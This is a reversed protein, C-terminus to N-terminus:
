LMDIALELLVTTMLVYPTIVGGDSAVVTLRTNVTFLFDSPVLAFVPLIVTVTGAL